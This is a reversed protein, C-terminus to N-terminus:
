PNTLFSPDWTDAVDIATWTGGGNGNSQFVYRTGSAAGNPLAIGITSPDDDTAGPTVRIGDGATYTKSSEALQNVKQVLGNNADGITDQLSEVAGALGTGPTDGVGATGITSQLTEVDGILGTGPISGVGATGVTGQLDGVNQQLTKVAGDSAGTAVKYVFELGDNVYKKTTLADDGDAAYAGISFMSVSIMLGCMISKRM